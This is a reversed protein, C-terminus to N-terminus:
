PRTGEPAETSADSAASLTSTGTSGFPYTTATLNLNSFNFLNTTTMQHFLTYTHTGSTARFVFSISRTEQNYGLPMADYSYQYAIESEKLSFIESCVCDSGGTGYITWHAQVLVFQTGSVGPVDITISAIDGATSTSSRTLTSTQAVRGFGRHMFAAMADRRVSDAPCYTTPGCGSTIGADKIAGIQAHFPQTDPVDSFQHSALVLAPGAILALGVIGMLLMRFSRTPRHLEVTIRM